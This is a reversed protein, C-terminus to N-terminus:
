SMANVASHDSSESAPPLELECPDFPWEAGVILETVIEPAVVTPLVKVAVGTPTVPVGVGVADNWQCSDEVAVPVKVFIVPAVLAVYRNTVPSIPFNKRTVTDSDFLKPVECVTVLEM